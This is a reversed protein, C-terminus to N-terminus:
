GVGGLRINRFRIEPGGAKVPVGQMPDSKGCTGAFFLDLDKSLADVAKLMGVSTTELVPRRVMTDTVEGDKILYAEVGTYKSQYRRDDINWESFSKMYVGIKIDETLEDFSYDGAEFYTNSMRIIPERSFASARAAGNSGLGFKVGFERNLLPEHLIGNKILTRKRAQVGEDDFLYYGSSNPITPDEHVTVEDSGVRSKGIELDRWFSEGAQAGERGKIRDGESPHGVNEHAIIGAVEPGVIMDIPHELLEPLKKAENAARILRTVESELIELVRADKIREWGGVENATYMKQESIGEGAATMIVFINLRSYNSTINTGESTMIHKTHTIPSIMFTYSTLDSMISSMESAFDMITETSVDELPKKVKVEWKAETSVAEGLDIPEKRKATKAMKFAKQITDEAIKKDMRDFSAFGINGEVLVRVGIGESPQVGGSVPQGNRYAFGRSKEQICRVEVYQSGLKLGYEVCYELLDKADMNLWWHNLLIM